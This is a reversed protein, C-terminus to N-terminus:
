MSFTFMSDSSCLNLSPLVSKGILFILLSRLRRRKSACGGPLWPSVIAVLSSPFFPIGVAAVTEEGGDLGIDIFFKEGGNGKLLHPVEMNKMGCGFDKLLSFVKDHQHATSFFNTFFFTAFIKLHNCQKFQYVM